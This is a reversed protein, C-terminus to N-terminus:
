GCIVRRQAHLSLPKLLNGVPQGYIMSIEVRMGDPKDAISTMHADHLSSATLRGRTYRHDGPKPNCLRDPRSEYENM